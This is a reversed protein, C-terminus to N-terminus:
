FDRYFKRNTFREAKRQHSRTTCHYKVHFDFAFLLKTFCSKRKPIFFRIRLSRKWINRNNLHWQYKILIQKNQTPLAQGWLRAYFPWTQVVAPSSIAAKNISFSPLIPQILWAKEKQQKLGTSEGSSISPSLYKCLILEGMNFILSELSLSPHEFIICLDLLYM